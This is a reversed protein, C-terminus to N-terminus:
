PAMGEWEVSAKQDHSPRVNWLIWEKGYLDKRNIDGSWEFLMGYADAKFSVPWPDIVTRSQMWYVVNPHINELKVVHAGAAEQVLKTEEPSLKKIYIMADGNKLWYMVGNPIRAYLKGDYESILVNNEIYMDSAPRWDDIETDTLTFRGRAYSDIQGNTM